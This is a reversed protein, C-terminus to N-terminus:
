RRRRLLSCAGMLLLAATGPEPIAGNNIAVNVARLFMGEADPTLDEWGARGLQNNPSVPERNGTAFFMRYGAFTQGANITGVAATGAPWSAISIGNVPTNTNAVVTGGPAVTDTPISVGLSTGAGVLPTVDEYMANTTTSGSLSVGGIIYSTVADGTNTFTFTTTATTAATDLLTAGNFWGLRNNRVLYGNTSILPKTVQTNWPTTEGTTDFSGSAIGRGLIVLDAANLQAVEAPTLALTNDPNFRTVTHGAGSLLTVYGEDPFPGASPATATNAEYLDSVWVINAAYLSSSLALAAATTFIIRPNM